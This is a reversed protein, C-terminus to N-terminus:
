KLYKEIMKLAVGRQKDSLGNQGLVTNLFKAEWETVDVDGEDIQKLRKLIERDNM